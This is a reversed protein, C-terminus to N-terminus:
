VLMKGDLGHSIDKELFRCESEFPRAVFFADEFKSLLIVEVEIIAATHAVAGRALLLDNGTFHFVRVAVCGLWVFSM